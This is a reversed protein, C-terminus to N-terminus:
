HMQLSKRKRYSVFQGVLVTKDPCDGALLATPSAFYFTDQSPLYVLTNTQFRSVTVFEAGAALRLLENEPLAASRIADANRAAPNRASRVYPAFLMFDWIFAASRLPAVNATM